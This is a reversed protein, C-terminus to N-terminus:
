YSSYIEAYNYFAGGHQNIFRFLHFSGKKAPTFEWDCDDFIWVKQDENLNEINLHMRCYGMMGTFAQRFFTSKGFRSPSKVILLPVRQGRCGNGNRVREIWDRLIPPICQPPFEYTSDCLNGATVRRKKFITNLNTLIRDGQCLATKPDAKVIYAFAEDVTTAEIAKQYALAAPMKIQCINVIRDNIKDDSLTKHLYNHVREFDAVTKLTRINPHYCWGTDRNIIDFVKCSRSVVQSVTEMLLHIHNQTDDADAGPLTHQEQVICYQKVGYKQRIVDIFVEEVQLVTLPCRPYTLFLKKCKIRFNADPRTQLSDALDRDITSPNVSENTNM